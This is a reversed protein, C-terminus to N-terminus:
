HLNQCQNDREINIFVPRAGDFGSRTSRYIKQLSFGHLVPSPLLECHGAFATESVDGIVFHVCERRLWSKGNTQLLCSQWHKLDFEAFERHLPPLPGDWNFPIIAKFLLRTYLPTMPLADKVSILLGAIRACYRSTLPVPPIQLGQAILELIYDVKDQPVRFSRQALDM